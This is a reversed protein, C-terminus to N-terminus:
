TNCLKDQTARVRYTGAKVRIWSMGVISNDIMFRLAYPLNSEYTVLEFTDEVGRPYNFSGNEFLTRLQNVYKPLGTYIKLFTAKASQYHMVSAKDTILEVAKVPTSTVGGQHEQQSGQVWKNLQDKIAQLDEGTLTKPMAATNVKVYFYPTFNHM